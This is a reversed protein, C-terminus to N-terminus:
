PHFSEKEMQAAVVAVHEGVFLARFARVEFERDPLRARARAFYKRLGDAMVLLDHSILHQHGVLFAARQLGDGQDASSGVHVFPLSCQSTAADRSQCKAM